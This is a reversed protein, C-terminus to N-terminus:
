KKPEVAKKAADTVADKAAGAAAKAADTAGAGAAVADKAAGAAASAADKAAETAAGVAASAAGAAAEAAPAVAPAPAAAPAVEEKKGCAALAVAALLSALVLTKKMPIRLTLFVIKHFALVMLLKPPCHCSVANSLVCFM